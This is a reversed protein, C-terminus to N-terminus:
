GSSSSNTEAALTAKVAKRVEYPGGAEAVMRCLEVYNWKGDPNGGCDTIIRKVWDLASPAISVVSESM